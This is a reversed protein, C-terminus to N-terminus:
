KFSVVSPVRQSFSHLRFDDNTDGTIKFIHKGNGPIIPFYALSFQIAGFPLYDNTIYFGLSFRSYLDVNFFPSEKRGIFATDVSLFPSVRFGIFQFPSYLQTQSSLIM